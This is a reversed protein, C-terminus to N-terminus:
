GILRGWYARPSYQPTAPLCSAAKFRDRLHCHSSQSLMSRKVAWMEEFLHRKIFKQQLYNRLFSLLGPTSNLSLKRKPLGQRRRDWTVTVVGPLCLPRTHTCSFRNGYLIHLVLCQLVSQVQINDAKLGSFWHHCSSHILVTNGLPLSLAWNCQTLQLFSSLNNEALPLCSKQGLIVHCIYM